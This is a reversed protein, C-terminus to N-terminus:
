KRTVSGSPLVRMTMSAGGSCSSQRGKRLTDARNICFVELLAEQQEGIEAVGGIEVYEVGLCRGFEIAVGVGRQDVDLAGAAGADQGIVVTGQQGAFKVEKGVPVDAPM